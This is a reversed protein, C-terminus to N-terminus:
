GYVAALPEPSIWERVEFNNLLFGEKVLFNKYSELGAIANESLETHQKLHIDEGYARTIWQSDSGTEQSIYALTEQRHESAWDNVAVIKRLFRQVIDPRLDLLHSDVTIPRPAGNNARVLPDPHQRLDFVIHAQSRETIELGRAGKVFIADVYGTLLAELLLDYYGQPRTLRQNNPQHRQIAMDVFTVEDRGIDALELATLFVRLAAARAHDISNQYQPLALRKGKLDKAERIPSNPAVIIAQYEDLWNLGIVRTDAGKAKAWLAPVNGGQRFSNVLHHDYHSERLALDNSDQLTHIQIGDTKFEQDLWGLQVALGLPTPVPCRTYWLNDIPANLITM